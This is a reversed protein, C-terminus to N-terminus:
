RVAADIKAALKFDKNTLGGSSHTTLTMTVTTYRVDIDPHHDMADAAVAVRDVFRIGEAFKGFTFTKRIADGARRWGAASKLRTAIDQETLRAM